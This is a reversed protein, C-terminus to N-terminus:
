KQKQAWGSGILSSQFSFFRFFGRFAQAEGAKRAPPHEAFVVHASARGIRADFIIRFCGCDAVTLLSQPHNVVILALNAFFMELYRCIQYYSYAIISEITM